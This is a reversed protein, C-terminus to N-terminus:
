ACLLLAYIYVTSCKKGREYPYRKGVMVTKLGCGKFCILTCNSIDGFLSRDDDGYVYRCLIDMLCRGVCLETFAVLFCLSQARASLFIGKMSDKKEQTIANHEDWLLLGLVVMTIGRTQAWSKKRRKKEKREQQATLPCFVSFTEIDTERERRKKTQLTSLTIYIYSYLLLLYMCIVGFLAIM